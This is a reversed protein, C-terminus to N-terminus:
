SKLKTNQRSDYDFHMLDVRVSKSTEDFQMSLVQVGHVSQLQQLNQPSINSSLLFDRFDVLFLTSYSQTPMLREM